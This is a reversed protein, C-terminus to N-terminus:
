PLLREAGILIITAHFWYDRRCLIVTIANECHNCSLNYPQEEVMEDIDVETDYQGKGCHPCIIKNRTVVREGM